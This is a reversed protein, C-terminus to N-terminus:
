YFENQMGAELWKNLPCRKGPAATASALPCGCKTCMFVNAEKDVLKVAVKGLYGLEKREPCEMCIKLRSEMMRKVYKSGEIYSVWGELILKLNM